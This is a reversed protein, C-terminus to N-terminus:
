PLHRGHGAPAAGTDMDPHALHEMGGGALHLGAITTIVVLAVAGFIKVWHPMADAPRRAPGAKRGAVPHQRLKVGRMAFGSMM